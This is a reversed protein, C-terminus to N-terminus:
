RWRLPRAKIDLLFFCTKNFVEQTFTFLTFKGDVAWRAAHIHSGCYHAMFRPDRKPVGRPPHQQQQQPAASMLDFLNEGDLHLTEPIPIGLLHTITPFFDMNSVPWDIRKGPPIHNPWWALTPVRIGGEMGGM